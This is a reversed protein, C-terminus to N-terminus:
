NREILPGWWKQNDVYWKVTRRIGEKFDVMPKWGLDIYIKDSSVSYQKDHGRRDSVYEILDDSLNLEQLIQKVLSLNDIKCDGSVNYIEGIKGKHLILDIASCHDFVNIWDRINDGKGYIGIKKGLIANTIVKPILKEVFQYPGYNNSCRSITVPLNYIRHYSMVFLDASAKSSAYPSSGKIITKEDNYFHRMEIPIDGYVEDTSIQHFRKVKYKLSADLLVSTGKVNTEIFLDANDISKDVHSEAAFHVVMDPKEDAFLKFIRDRDCIDIKNVVLNKECLVDELNHLNGAYTIKDLCILKYTPYKKLMYKIFNSGIFGAGGTIIIKM